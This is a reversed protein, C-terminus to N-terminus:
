SSSVVNTDQLEDVMVYTFRERYRERLEGHSALM